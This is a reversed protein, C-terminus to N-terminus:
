LLEKFKNIKNKDVTYKGMLLENNIIQGHCDSGATILLNNSQAIDKFYEEDEKSHKSHFCEIGQIGSNICHEIISEKEKLIGPHALVPIGSSDKILSISDKISLTDRLVYASAGKNLYKEFADNISSVYGKDVLIRAIHIRGIFDKRTLSLVEDESIDISMDNLKKIIKKGRLVRNKRLEETRNLLDESEYDIFYGLIHVEEDNYITGLEIGPIVSFGEYKKSCEMAERLGLVTDHDTIAIGNLSREVALEVVKCPEYLGDSYNTHVHLDFKM